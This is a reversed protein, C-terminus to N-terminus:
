SANFIERNANVIPATRWNALDDKRSYIHLLSQMPDTPMVGKFYPGSRRWLERLFWLDEFAAGVFRENYRLDGLTERRISCQSNGFVPLVEDRGRMDCAPHQRGEYALRFEEYHDFLGPFDYPEPLPRELYRVRHCLLTVTPDDLVVYSYFFHPGTIADADLFTIIEGKSEEIGVNLLRSKNFIPMPDANYIVKLDFPYAHRDLAFCASGNEVVIIELDLDTANNFAVRISDLCIRLNGQRNRHPIIISSTRKV